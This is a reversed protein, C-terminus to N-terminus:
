DWLGGDWVGSVAANSHGVHAVNNVCDLYRRGQDDYLSSGQGRVMHLPSEYSLSTNPGYV